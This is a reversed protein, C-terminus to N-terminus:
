VIATPLGLRAREALLGLLQGAKAVIPDVYEQLRAFSITM